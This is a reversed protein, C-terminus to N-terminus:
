EFSHSSCISHSEDSDNEANTDYSDTDSSYQDSDRDPRWEDTNQSQVNSATGPTESESLCGDPVQSCHTEQTDSESPNGATSTHSGGDSEDDSDRIRHM